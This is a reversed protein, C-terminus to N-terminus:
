TSILRFGKWAIIKKKLIIWKSFITITKESEHNEDDKKRSGQNQRNM